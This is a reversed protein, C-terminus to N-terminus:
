YVSILHIFLSFRCICWLSCVCCVFVRVGAFQESVIIFGACSLCTCQYIYSTSSM